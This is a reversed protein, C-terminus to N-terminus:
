SQMKSLSEIVLGFYVDDEFTDMYIGSKRKANKRFLAIEKTNPSREKNNINLCKEGQYFCKEHIVDEEGFSVPTICRAQNKDQSQSMGKRDFEDNDQMFSGNVNRHFDNDSDNNLFYDGQSDISINKNRNNDSSNSITVKPQSKIRLIKRVLQENGKLFSHHHYCGTDEGRNVRRFGYNYLQRTFSKIRTHRFFLPLIQEVFMETNHIKFSKGHSQWSVVEKLNFGECKMLMTYLRQPFPAFSNPTTTM